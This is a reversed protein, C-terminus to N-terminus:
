SPETTSLKELNEEAPGSIVEGTARYRSGHCPCDWTQEAPNWHVICGLHTCVPSCLTLHDSADRYAAVKRGAIQIIKGEGPAVSALTDSDGRGFWDRLLYYPYNANEKIFNWVGGQAKKRNIDFLDRWPNRRGLLADAAMMGGLTGFTMGTGCFGTAAFQHPATEGILPLGDNTETVQGSWHHDIEADPFYERFRTALHEFPVRTDTLQGTKHDEGGFIAYDHEGRPEIRLYYYPDSTDWFLAHPYRGAPLRAGLAYTNYLALKTQLLLAGAIATDGQLPVHTAVVVDRCLIRYAAAHVTLPSEDLATAPTNEFVHSGGGPILSALAALYKRPHFLAQHPFQVGPLGFHPVATEYSARFGLQTALTAEEQFKDAPASEGRLSAMRYGPVWHFDCAIAHRRILTVIQDRAAAAADWAGRAADAGFNQVLEPLSLDTVHTIHATTHGTDGRACRGRELLAVTAGGQKLLYAATIGTLGGGIVVVDVTLDRDLSPFTPLAASEIWYSSSAM